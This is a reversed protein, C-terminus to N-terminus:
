GAPALCNKFSAAMNRLLTFYADPGSEITAGLPDLTGTRALTGETITNVLRSEFQPEDFVCTAGLEHVKERLELIRRAGPSRGSSVVASGAATLGFRDEFHRYADHFVIFPRKRVPAMDAAIETTLAELQRLLVQTNAAYIAANAPDAESLADAIMRVMAGANVPDLWLHMDFAGHEDHGHTDTDEGAHEESEHREHSDDIEHDYAEFTGGERLPKHVLGKAESLAIVRADDALVDIPGVLSTELSEGILFVIHADELLAAISPRLSFTHPSATDQMILHPEGAGAMVTSVLSHVPKISTVVRIAADAAAPGTIVCGFLVATTLVLRLRRPMPPSRDIPAGGDVGPVTVSTKLKARNNTYQNM